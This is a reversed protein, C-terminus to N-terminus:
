CERLIFMQLQRIKRQQLSYTDSTTCELANLRNQHLTISHIFHRILNAKAETSEVPFCRGELLYHHCVYSSWPPVMCSCSYMSSAFHSQILQHIFLDEKVLTRRLRHTCNGSYQLSWGQSYQNPPQYIYIHNLACGAYDTETAVAELVGIRNFGITTM